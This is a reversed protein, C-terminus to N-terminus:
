RWQLKFYVADVDNEFCVVCYMEHYDWGGTVNKELWDYVESRLQSHQNWIPWNGAFVHIPWPALQHNM